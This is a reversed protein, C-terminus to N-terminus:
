WTGRFRHAEQCFYVLKSELKLVEAHDQINEQDMSIQDWFM